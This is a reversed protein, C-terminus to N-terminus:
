ESGRREREEREWDDRLGTAAGLAEIRRELESLRARQNRHWDWHTMQDSYCDL